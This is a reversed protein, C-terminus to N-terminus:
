TYKNNKNKTRPGGPVQPRRPGKPAEQPRRPGGPAEQPKRPGKKPGGGTSEIGNRLGGPPGGTGRLGNPEIKVVFDNFDLDRKACVRRGQLLM